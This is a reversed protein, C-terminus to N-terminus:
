NAILIWNSKWYFVWGNIYWQLLPYISKRWFSAVPFPFTQSWIFYMYINQILIFLWSSKALDRRKNTRGYRLLSTM